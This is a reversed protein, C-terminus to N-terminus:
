GRPGPAPVLLRLYREASSELTFRDLGRGGAPRAPPSGLVRELALALAAPDGVPVLTGHRGGELIERPGSPCDTAVVPAGCALAQILVGPLGEWESALVFASCRAMFAFPNRAFGPLAVDRELGLGRVRAELSRRLPGEGLILLRASRRARLRAFAELLTTFGKQPRLKGAALLLPPQGTRLWPHHLPERARRSLDPTLVPNYTTHVADPPLGLLGALDRAVGDSVAALADAEPYFLRVQEPLRRHRRPGHAARCSLMNRESVVLRTAVGARRRAWLATLNSTDLASLM